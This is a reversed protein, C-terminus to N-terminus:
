GPATTYMLPSQYELRAVCSVKFFLKNRHEGGRPFLFVAVAFKFSYHEHKAWWSPDRWGCPSSERGGRRERRSCLYEGARTVVRHLVVNTFLNM